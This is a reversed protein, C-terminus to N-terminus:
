NGSKKRGLANKLDYFIPPTVKKAASRLFSGKKNNNVAKEGPRAQFLTSHGASRESAPRGNSYYYLALSKRSMEDPCKLPDPHGHYSFDTTSFVVCRNFIPLIKKECRTMKTDWLELHGGYEERWNKNLYLLINLRRDLKLREYINFDAHVGLHGGRVIQHMGGGKFHPDPILGSIGTLAEIFNIFTSSNFLYLLHRTHPGMKNEDSCSLKRQQANDITHWDIDSHRPFESLVMDLADPSLFDDMVIHPFPAASQYAAAHTAALRQLTEPDFTFPQQATLM